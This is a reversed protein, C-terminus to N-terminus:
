GSNLPHPNQQSQFGREQLKRKVGNSLAVNEDYFLASLARQVNQKFVPESPVVANEGNVIAPVFVVNLVGEESEQISICEHQRQLKPKTRFVLRALLGEDTKVLGSFFVYLPPDQVVTFFGSNRKDFGNYLTCRRDKFAACSKEDKAVLKGAKKHFLNIDFAVATKSVDGVKLYYTIADNGENFPLILISGTEVLATVTYREFNLSVM